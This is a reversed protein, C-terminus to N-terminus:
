SVLFSSFFPNQFQIIITTTTSSYSLLWNNLTPKKEDGLTERMM